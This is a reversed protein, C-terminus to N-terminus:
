ARQLITPPVALQQKGTKDSFFPAQAFFLEFSNKKEHLKVSIM